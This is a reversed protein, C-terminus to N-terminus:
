ALWLGHTLESAYLALAEESNAMAELVDGLQTGQNLQQLWYALGDADAERELLNQYVLNLLDAASGTALPAHHLLFESSGLLNQALGDASLIGVDLQEVWYGLGAQDPNRDLLAQYLRFAVGAHQGAGTDLALEGTQFTLRAPMPAEAGLQRVELNLSHSAESLPNAFKTDSADFATASVSYTGAEFYHAGTQWQGDLDAQTTITTTKGDKEFALRVLNLAGVKNTFGALWDHVDGPGDWGSALTGTWGFAIVPHDSPAFPVAVSGGELSTQGGVAAFSGDTELIGVVPVALTGALPKPNAGGGPILLEPPLATASGALLNVTYTSLTDGGAPLTILAGGDIVQETIDNTFQGGQTTTYLNFTKGHQGQTDAVTVRIWATGDTPVPLGTLM